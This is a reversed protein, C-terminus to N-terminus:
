SPSRASQWQAIIPRSSQYGIEVIQEIANWAFMDFGSVPPALHLDAERRVRKALQNSTVLASRSLIDFITPFPVNAAGDRSLDGLLRWPSPTEAYREGLAADVRPSVDVAIVPGESLRRMADLPVNDLLSGDVLLDGADSVVPPLIGPIAMSANIWRVISGDQHVALESRTINTTVCFFSLWLDEIRADGFTANLARLPGRGSLMAILPLTYDKLPRRDVWVRRNHAIMDQWRYGHAYQGAILAGLSTGGIRDIPIGAEELARIVGIHAYARAGGGGLVLGIARGALHRGLRAFDPSSAHRVHHHAIFPRLSLWHATGRPRASGDGHLLVLEVDAMERADAGERLEAPIPCRAPDTGSQACALIRDAQRVCRRAWAPADRASEYVVFRHDAEQENLWHTIRAYDPSGEEAISAGAGLVSEVRGASLHLVSGHEALAAAVRGAVDSPVDDGLPVVAITIMRANVPRERATLWGALMRTLQFMSRPYNQQIQEFRSRSLRVLESDRIARVTASRPEGTLLSLEGINDGRGAERLLREDGGPKQVVARLRGSAVVYLSDGVDGHRFLTEGGPLLLWEVADVVEDLAASEIGAFLATAALFQRADAPANVAIVSM